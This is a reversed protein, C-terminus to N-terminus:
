RAVAKARAPRVAVVDEDVVGTLGLRGRRGGARESQRVEAPDGKGMRDKRAPRRHATGHNLARDRGSRRVRDFPVVVARRVALEDHRERIPRLPDEGAVDNHRDRVGCLVIDIDFQRLDDVAAAVRDVEIVIVPGVRDQEGADAVVCARGDGEQGDRPICVGADRRDMIAVAAGDVVLLGRVGM